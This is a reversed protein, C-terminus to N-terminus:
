ADLIRNEVQYVEIPEDDWADLNEIIIKPKPIFPLDNISSVIKFTDSGRKKRLYNFCCTRFYRSGCASACERGCSQCNLTSAWAAM